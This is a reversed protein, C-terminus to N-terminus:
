GSGPSTGEVFADVVERGRDPVDTILGTVGLQLVYSMEREGNVTWVNVLRGRRIAERVARPTAISTEIHLAQIRLIRALMGRLWRPQRASLLLAVPIGQGAIWGASLVAWPNFSSLLVWRTLGRASVLQVVKGPLPDLPHAYNTLEINYLTRSGFEDLVEALRPVREGAFDAGFHGGADLEAVEAMTYDSISGRGDTTRELRQDHLVAVDGDATLKVDLELGDAGQALALRFAAM